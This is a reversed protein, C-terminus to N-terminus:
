PKQGLSGVSERGPRTHNLEEQKQTVCSAPPQIKDPGHQALGHLIQKQFCRDEKEADTHDAEQNVNVRNGM